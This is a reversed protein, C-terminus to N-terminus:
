RRVLHLTMGGGLDLRLDFPAAGPVSAGLAGMEFFAPAAMAKPVAKVVAASAATGLCAQWRRFSNVSLGERRCFASVTEGSAEHRRLLEGWAASGRHRRRIREM